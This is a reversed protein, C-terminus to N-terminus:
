KDRERERDRLSKNLEAKHAPKEKGEYQFDELNKQESKITFDLDEIMKQKYYALTRARDVLKTYRVQMERQFTLNSKKIQEINRVLDVGTEV